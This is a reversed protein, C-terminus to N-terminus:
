IQKRKINIGLAMDQVTKIQQVIRKHYIKKKMNTKYLNLNKRFEINTTM